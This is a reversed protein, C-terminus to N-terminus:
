GSRARRGERSRRSKSANSSKGEATTSDKYIYKERGRERMREAVKSRLGESQDESTIEDWTLGQSKTNNGEGDVSDVYYKTDKEDRTTCTSSITITNTKGDDDFTFRDVKKLKPAAKGKGAAAIKRYIKNYTSEEKGDTSATSESIYWKRRKNSDRQSSSPWYSIESTTSDETKYSFRQKPSSRKSSKIPKTSEEKTTTDTASADTNTDTATDSM